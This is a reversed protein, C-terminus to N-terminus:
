GRASPGRREGGAGDSARAELEARVAEFLAVTEPEPEDQRPDDEPDDPDRRTERLAQRLHRDERVLGALDGLEEYCRYLDRVVEELTFTTRRRSSNV